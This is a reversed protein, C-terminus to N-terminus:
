QDPTLGHKIFAYDALWEWDYSKRLETFNGAISNYYEIADAAGRRSWEGIETDLLNNDLWCQLRYQSEVDPLSHKLKICERFATRWCMWANDYYRAQGSLL